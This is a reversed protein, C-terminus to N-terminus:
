PNYSSLSSNSSSKKLEPKPLFEKLPARHITGSSTLVVIDSNAMLLKEIPSKFTVTNVLEFTSEKWVKVTKDLSATFILDAFQEVGTIKGTHFQGPFLSFKNYPLLWLALQGNDFGCLTENTRTVKLASFNATDFPCQTNIVNQTEKNYMNLINDGTIVIINSEDVYTIAQISNKFKAFTSSKYSPLDICTLEGSKSGLLLKDQNPIKLMATIEESIKLNKNIKKNETNIIDLSQDTAIAITNPELLAFLLSKNETSYIKEPNNNTYLFVNKPSSKSRSGKFFSSSKDNSHCVIYSNSSLVLINNAPSGTKVLDMRKVNKDKNSSEKNNHNIKQAEVSQKSDSVLKLADDQISLKLEKTLSTQVAKHLNNVETLAAQTIVKDVNKFLKIDATKDARKLADVIAQYAMSIKTYYRYIENSSNHPNSARIQLAKSLQKSSSSGVQQAAKTLGFVDSIMAECLTGLIESFQQFVIKFKESHSLLSQELATELSNIYKRCLEMAPLLRTVSCLKVMPDCVKILAEVNNNLGEILSALERLETIVQSVSKLHLMYETIEKLTRACNDNRLFAFDERSFKNVFTYWGDLEVFKLTRQNFYELLQLFVIELVEATKNNTEKFKVVSQIICKRQFSFPYDNIKELLEKVHDLSNELSEKYNHPHYKSCSPINKFYEDFLKVLLSLDKALNQHPETITQM